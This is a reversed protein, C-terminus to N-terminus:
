RYIYKDDNKWERIFRIFRVLAEEKNMKTEDEPEVEPAHGQYNYSIPAQEFGNM